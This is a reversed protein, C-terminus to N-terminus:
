INKFANPIQEFIDLIGALFYFRIDVNSAAEASVQNFRNQAYNNPAESYNWTYNSEKINNVISVSNKIRSTNVLDALQQTIDQYIDNLSNYISTYVLSAPVYRGQVVYLHLLKPMFGYTDIMRKIFAEATAFGDDFMMMAAAGLLYNELNEKLGNAIGDVGCNILVFYLTQLDIPTIGGLEYMRYINDLAMAGDPGLSGGHFGFENSGYNYEKVSISANVFNNLEQLLRNLEEEGNETSQLGDKIIQRTNAMMNEFVKAAADVNTAGKGEQKYGTLFSEEWNNLIPLLDQEINQQEPKFTIPSYSFNVSADTKLLISKGPLFVNGGIINEQFNKSEIFEACSPGTVTIKLINEISEKLKRHQFFSPNSKKLGAVIRKQIEYAQKDKITASFSQKFIEEARKRIAEGLIRTITARGQAENKKCLEQIQRKTLNFGYKRYLNMVKNQEKSELELFMKGLGARSTLAVEELTKLSKGSMIKLANEAMKDNVQKSLTEYQNGIKEALNAGSQTALTEYDLNLLFNLVVSVVQKQIQVSSWPGTWSNKIAEIIEPNETINYMVSNFRKALLVTAQTNFSKEVEDNENLMNKLLTNKAVSIFKGYSESEYAEQLDKKVKESARQYNESLMELNNEVIADRTKTFDSNDRLMENLLSILKPYNFNDGLNKTWEEFEKPLLKKKDESLIAKFQQVFEIENARETEAIQGILAIYSKIAESFSENHSIYKPNLKGSAEQVYRMGQSYVDQYSSISTHSPLSTFFVYRKNVKLDHHALFSDPFM